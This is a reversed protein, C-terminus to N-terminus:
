KCNHTAIPSSSSSVGRATGTCGDAVLEDAGGGFTQENNKHMSQEAKHSQSCIMKFNHKM